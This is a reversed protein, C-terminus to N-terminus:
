DHKRRGLYRPVILTAVVLVATILQLDTSTDVGIGRAEFAFQIAVRYFVSGVICSIIIWFISRTRFLTEGIIVAALGFVITGTGGTIDTAIATQIYLSGGLAVCANSLGMGFYILASTHVGQAIAMRPNAGMARMALGMESELFRWVLLAVIILVFGIFLPRIFIDPLGLLNYFPTLATDSLALNVNSGGMIGMVRLNITYLASMTLISALLNLIGFHLNLLATLLGAAMGACFACAMATWANFDLLILVGCVCAGLLFSGDVTLDPFDLVRFSLYVGIAVFAYILGLEVAGSFAFVSM